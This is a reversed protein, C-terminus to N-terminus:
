DLRWSVLRWVWWKYMREVRVWESRWNSPNAYVRCKGEMTMGQLPIERTGTSKLTYIVVRLKRKAEVEQVLVQRYLRELPAEPRSRHYLHRSHM